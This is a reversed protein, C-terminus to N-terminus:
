LFHHGKIKLGRRRAGRLKRQGRKLKKLRELEMFYLYKHEDPIVQRNVKFCVIFENEHFIYIRSKDKTRFCVQLAWGGNHIAKTFWQEQIAQPCSYYAAQYMIGLDTVVAFRTFFESDTM